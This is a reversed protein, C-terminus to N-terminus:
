QHAAIILGGAYVSTMIEVDNHTVVVVTGGRSGRKPDFYTRVLFGGQMTGDPAGSNAGSWRFTRATSITQGGTPIGADAHILAVNDGWVYGYGSATKGKRTGILIPPLGLIASFQSASMKDPIPTVATKSAVFKQVQANQVFDHYTRESMAIYNIDVLSAEM